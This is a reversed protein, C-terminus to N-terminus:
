ILDLILYLIFGICLGVSGLIAIRVSCVFTERKVQKHYFINAQKYILPVVLLSGLLAVPFIGIYINLFITLYALINSFIFLWLGAKVGIYHILTTRNNKEDEGHDCINNALMINGIWIVEPLSALFVKGLTVWSWNFIQFSNVYVSILTIVFGMTVGSAIEGFPTNSIPRPGSSYMIGILFCFLGMWLVPLGVKVTLYIGMIASIGTFTVMLFIVLKMPISERGIINTKKKWEAYDSHHFDNYNDLIDVNMNFLLMAVFFIISYLINVSGLIYWSFFLGVIFPFVSATKAKMEVLELFTSLTM